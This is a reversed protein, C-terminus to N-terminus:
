PYLGALRSLHWFPKKSYEANLVEHNEVRLAVVCVGFESSWFSMLAAEFRPVSFWHLPEPDQFQSNIGERCVM